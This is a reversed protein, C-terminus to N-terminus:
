LYHPKIQTYEKKIKNSLKTAKQQLDIQTHRSTKDFKLNAIKDLLATVEELDKHTVKLM